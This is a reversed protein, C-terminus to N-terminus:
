QLARSEAHNLLFLLKWCQSSLELMCDRIIHRDIDLGVGGEQVYTLILTDKAMIISGVMTPIKYNYIHTNVISFYQKAFPPCTDLVLTLKSLYVCVWVNGWPIPQTWLPTSYFNKGRTHTRQVVFQIYLDGGIGPHPPTPSSM